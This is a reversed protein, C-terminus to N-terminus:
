RSSAARRTRGMSSGLHSPPPCSVPRLCSLGPDCTDLCHLSSRQCHTPLLCCPAHVAARVAFSSVRVQVRTAWVYIMWAIPVLSIAAYLVGKYSAVLHWYMYSMGLSVAVTAVVLYTAVNEQTLASSSSAGGSGSRSSAAAGDGRASAM